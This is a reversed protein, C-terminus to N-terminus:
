SLSLLIIYMYKNSYISSLNQLRHVQVLVQVIYERKEVSLQM